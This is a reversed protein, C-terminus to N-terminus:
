AMALPVVQARRTQGGLLASLRDSWAELAARMEPVPEYRNYTGEIRPLAHGLIAQAIHLAVGMEALRTRVTRRLDYWVWGNTGSPALLRKQAKAM